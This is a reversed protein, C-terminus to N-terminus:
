CDNEDDRSQHVRLDAKGRTNLRSGLAVDIRTFAASICGLVVRADLRLSM